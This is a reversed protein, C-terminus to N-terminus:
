CIFATVVTIQLAKYKYKAMCFSDNVEIKFRLAQPVAVGIILKLVQYSSGIGSGGNASCFRM